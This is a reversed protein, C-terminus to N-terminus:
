LQPGPSTDAAPLSLGWSPLTSHQHQQLCPRQPPAPAPFQRIGHQHHHAPGQLPQHTTPSCSHIDSINRIELPHPPCGPWQHLQAVSCPRNHLQCTPMYRLMVTLIEATQQRALAETSPLQWTSSWGPIQLPAWKHCAPDLAWRQLGSLRGHMMSLWM